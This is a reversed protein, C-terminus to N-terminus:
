DVKEIIKLVGDYSEESRPLYWEGEYMEAVKKIGPLSLEEVIYFGEQISELDTAHKYQQWYLHMNEIKGSNVGDSFGARFANRIDDFSYDEGTKDAFLEYKEAIEKDSLLVSKADDIWVKDLDLGRRKKKQMLRRPHDEPVIAEMTKLYEDMKERSDFVNVIYNADTYNKIAQRKTSPAPSRPPYIEHDTVFDRLLWSTGLGDKRKSFILEYFGNFVVCAYLNDADEDGINVIKPEMLNGINDKVHISSIPVAGDAALGVGTAFYPIDDGVLPNERIPNFTEGPKVEVSTVAGKPEQMVQQVFTDYEEASHTLIVPIDPNVKKLRDVLSGFSGGYLAGALINDDPPVFMGVLNNKNTLFLVRQTKETRFICRSDRLFQASYIEGGFYCACLAHGLRKRMDIDTEAALSTEEVQQIKPLYELVGEWTPVGIYKYPAPTTGKPINLPSEAKFDEYRLAKFTYYFESDQVMVWPKGKNDIVVYRENCGNRCYAASESLIGNVYEPLPQVAYLQEITPREFVDWGDKTLWERADEKLNWYPFSLNGKFLREKTKENLLIWRGGDSLATSYLLRYVVGEHLVAIFPAENSLVEQSALEKGAETMWTNKKM